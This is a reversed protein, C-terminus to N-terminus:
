HALPKWSPDKFRLAYSELGKAIKLFGAARAESGGESKMAASGAMIEALITHLAADAEEKLKCEKFISQVSKDIKDSLERYDQSQMKGQHVDSMKTQLQARINGMHTRLPADSEYKQGPKLKVSAKHKKHDHHHDEAAFAGGAFVLFAGLFLTLLRDM